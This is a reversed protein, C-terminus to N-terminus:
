YLIKGIAVCVGGTVKNDLTSIGNESNSLTMYKAIIACTSIKSLNVTYKTIFNFVNIEQALFSVAFDAFEIIDGM